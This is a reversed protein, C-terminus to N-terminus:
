LFVTPVNKLPWFIQFRLQLVPIGNKGGGFTKDTGYKNTAKYIILNELIKAIHLGYSMKMVVCMCMDVYLVCM